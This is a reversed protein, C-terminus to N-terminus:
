RRQVGPPLSVGPPGLAGAQGRGSHRTRTGLMKQAAHVAQGMTMAKPKPITTVKTKPNGIQEMLSDDYTCGLYVVNYWAASLQEIRRADAETDLHFTIGNIGVQTAEKVWAVRAEFAGASEWKKRHLM